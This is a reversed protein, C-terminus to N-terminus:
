AYPNEGAEHDTVDAVDVVEPVQEMIIRAIGQSLTMKSMACGQCGGSMRVYARGSEEDLAVLDARGGHSAISPNVDREIVEAVTAALPFDLGRELVEAPVGPSIEAADPTNPNVLELGGGNDDSWRLTAGHLKAKSDAPVVISVDDQTDVADGPRADSVGQLYLDYRYAGDAVGAVEIWLALGEPNSEGALADRVTAAAEPSITIVRETAPANQTTTAM